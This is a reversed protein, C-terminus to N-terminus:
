QQNRRSLIAKYESAIEDAHEIMISVCEATVRTVVTDLDSPLLVNWLAAIVRERIVSIPHQCQIATHRVAECPAANTTKDPNVTRLHFM